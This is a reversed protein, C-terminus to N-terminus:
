YRELFIRIDQNKLHLEVYIVSKLFTRKRGSTKEYRGIPTLSFPLFGM